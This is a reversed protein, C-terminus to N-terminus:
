IVAVSGKTKIMTKKPRANVSSPASIPRLYKKLGFQDNSLSELTQILAAECTKLEIPMVKPDM